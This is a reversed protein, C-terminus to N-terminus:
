DLLVKFLRQFNATTCTAIEEVPVKKLEAIFEAVHRVYAPQNTKGRHPVPTLFPADTEILMRELPVQKAVEQLTTANKFTVIGSFSIYFGMAIAAQAMSWDETFCHLVGGIQEAGEEQLIRLTDEKAARTHIILPKGVQKAAQIHRRFREHQWAIESGQRYYDLGTEGIAVVEPVAAREAIEEISPEYEEQENPHVGVSTSVMPYRKALEILAAGNSWDTSVTVLHQVHNKTAAQLIAEVKEAQLEPEILNLHCHSDVLIM